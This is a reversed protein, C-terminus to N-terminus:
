EGTKSPLKMIKNLQSLANFLLGEKRESLLQSMVDGAIGIVEANGDRHMELVYNTVFSAVAKYFYTKAIEPKGRSQQFAIVTDYDALSEFYRFARILDGRVLKQAAPSAMSFNAVKLTEQRLSDAYLSNDYDRNYAIGSSHIKYLASAFLQAIEQLNIKGKGLLEEIAPVKPVEEAFYHENFGLIFTIDTGQMAQLAKKENKSSYPKYEDHKFSTLTQMELPTIRSFRREYDDAKEQLTTIRQYQQEIFLKALLFRAHLSEPDRDDGHMLVRKMIEETIEGSGVLQLAHRRGLQLVSQMEFGRIGRLQYPLEAVKLYFDWMKQIQARRENLNLRWLVRDQMLKFGEIDSVFFNPCSLKQFYEVIYLHMEIGLSFEDFSKGDTGDLDRWGKAKHAESFQTYERIKNELDIIRTLDSPTKGVSPNVANQLIETKERESLGAMLAKISNFTREDMNILVGRLFGM